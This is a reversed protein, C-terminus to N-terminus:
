LNRKFQIRIKKPRWHGPTRKVIFHRAPFDHNNIGESSCFLACNCSSLFRFLDGFVQILNFSNIEFNIFPCNSIAIVRARSFQSPKMTYQLIFEDDDIVGDLYSELLITRADKFTSMNTRSLFIVTATGPSFHKSKIIKNQAPVVLSSRTKNM